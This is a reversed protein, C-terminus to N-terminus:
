VKLTPHPADPGLGSVPDALDELAGTVNAELWAQADQGSSFNLAPSGDDAPAGARVWGSFCDVMRALGEANPALVRRVRDVITAPHIETTIESAGDATARQWLLARMEEDLGLKFLFMAFNNAAIQSTFEEIIKSEGGVAVCVSFVESVVLPATSSDGTPIDIRLAGPYVVYVGYARGAGNAAFTTKM